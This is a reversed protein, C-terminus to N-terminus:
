DHSHEVAERHMQKGSIDTQKINIYNEDRVSAVSVSLTEINIIVIRLILITFPEASYVIHM